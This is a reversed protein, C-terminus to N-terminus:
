AALQDSSPIPGHTGDCSIQIHHYGDLAARNLGFNTRDSSINEAANHWAMVKNRMLARALTTTNHGPAPPWLTWLSLESPQKPLEFTWVILTVPISVPGKYATFSISPFYTGAASTAKGCPISITM